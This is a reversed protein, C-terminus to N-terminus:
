NKSLVNSIHLSIGGTNDIQPSDSIYFNVVAKKKLTFKSNKAHALALSPTEYIISDSYTVEPFEISSYSYKNIWGFKMGGKDNKKEKHFWAKWADYAGGESVGIVSVCYTGANLELSVPKEPTSTKANINVIFISDSVTVIQSTGNVSCGVNFMNMLALVALLRFQNRLRKPLFCNKM